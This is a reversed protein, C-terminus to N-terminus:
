DAGAMARVQESDCWVFRRNAGKGGIFRGYRRKASTAYDYGSTRVCRIAWIDDRAEESGLTTYRLVRNSARSM